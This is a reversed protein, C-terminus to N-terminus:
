IVFIMADSVSLVFVSEKLVTRKEPKRQVCLGNEMATGDPKDEEGLRNIKLKPKAALRKLTM